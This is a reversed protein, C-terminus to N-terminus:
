HLHISFGSYLFCRVGTEEAVIAETEEFEEAIVSVQPAFMTIINAATLFACLFVRIKKSM